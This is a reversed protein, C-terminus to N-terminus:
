LKKMVKKNMKRANTQFLIDFTQISKSKYRNKVKLIKPKDPKHTM